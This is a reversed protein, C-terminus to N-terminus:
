EITGMMVLQAEQRATLVSKLDATAKDLQSRVKEKADRLAALKQKIVEPKAATDDLTAQLAARAKEVDTQTM